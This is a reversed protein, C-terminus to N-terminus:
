RTDVKLLIYNSFYYGNVGAQCDNVEPQSMLHYSPDTLFLEFFALTVFENLALRCELGLRALTPKFPKLQTTEIRSHIGLDHITVFMADCLNLLLPGPLMYTVSDPYFECQKLVHTVNNIVVQLSTPLSRPPEEITPLQSTCKKRARNHRYRRNSRAM